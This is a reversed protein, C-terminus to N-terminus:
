AKGIMYMSLDTYVWQPGKSAIVGLRTRPFIVVIYIMMNFYNLLPLGAPIICIEKAGELLKGSRVLKGRPM